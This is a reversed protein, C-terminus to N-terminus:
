RGQRWIEDNRVFRIESFSGFKEIVFPGGSPWDTGDAGNVLDFGELAHSPLAILLADEFALTPESFTIMPSKGDGETGIITAMVPDVNGGGALAIYRMAAPTFALDFGTIPEGDSWTAKDVIKYIVAMTGDDNVTIGDSKSPMTEVVDPMRDWTGPDIDYVTAWVLNGYMRVGFAYPAFPNLTEIPFDVGITVDGGFGDPPGTATTPPRPYDNTSHSYDHQSRACGDCHVASYGIDFHVGLLSPWRCPAPIM